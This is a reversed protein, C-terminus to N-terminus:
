KGKGTKLARLRDGAGQELAAIAKGFKISDDAIQAAGKPLSEPHALQWAGLNSRAYMMMDVPRKAGFEIEYAAMASACFHKSVDDTGDTREALYHIFARLEPEQM